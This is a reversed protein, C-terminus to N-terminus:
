FLIYLVKVTASEAVARARSAAQTAKDLLQSAQDYSRLLAFKENQATVENMASNLSDQALTWAEPAYEAAEATRAAELASNASDIAPQPAQACGALLALGTAALAVTLTRYM